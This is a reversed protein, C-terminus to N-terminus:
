HATVVATVTARNSEPWQCVRIKFDSDSFKTEVELIGHELSKIEGVLIQGDSFRISDKQASVNKISIIFLSLFLVSFEFKM